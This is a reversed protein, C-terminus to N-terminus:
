QGSESTGIIETQHQATQLTRLCFRKMTAFINADVGLAKVIAKNELGDAAALVIRARLALGQGRKRRRAQAELDRREAASLTITVAPKGM